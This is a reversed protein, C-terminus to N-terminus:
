GRKSYNRLVPLGDIREFSEFLDIDNDSLRYFRRMTSASVNQYKRFRRDGFKESQKFVSIDYGIATSYIGLQRIIRYDKMIERSEEKRPEIM